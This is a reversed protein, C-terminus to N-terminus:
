HDYENLIQIAWDFAINAEEAMSDSLKSRMVAILVPADLFDL